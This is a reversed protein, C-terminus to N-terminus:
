PWHARLVDRVAATLAPDEPGAALDPPGPWGPDNVPAFDHLSRSASYRPVVHFHVHPDVMMLMLYNLKEPAFVARSATEIDTIVRQMETFAELPLASFDRAEGRAILVLAGLTAQKPRALVDWHTYGCILTQPGAFRRYTENPSSM